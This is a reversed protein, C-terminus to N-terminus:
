YGQSQRKAALIEDRIQHYHVLRQPAIHGSEVAAHLACGPESDHCCDRFRCKGALERFEIFGQFLDDPTLHALGFAQLGPSDILWGHDIPYLRAFTTTHKGSNPADSIERTRAHADPILGNTLTSKGM